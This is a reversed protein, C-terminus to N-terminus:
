MTFDLFAFSLIVIAILELALVPLWAVIWIARMWEPGDNPWLAIAVCGIPAAFLSGHWPGFPWVPLDLSELGLQISIMWAPSLVFM